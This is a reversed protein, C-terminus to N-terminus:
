YKRFHLRYSANNLIMDDSTLREIVFTAELVKDSNPNAIIGYPELTKPNTIVSDSIVRLNAIPSWIRLFNNNQEFRFDIKCNRPIDRVEFLRSQVSWFLKSQRMDASRNTALTDIQRMQWYGDISGNDSTEFDCAAFCTIIVAITIFIINKM